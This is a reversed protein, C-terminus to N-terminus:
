NTFLKKRCVERTAKQLSYGRACLKHVFIHCDRCLWCLDNLKENGLNSYRKHHLNLYNTSKCSECKMERKSKNIMRKKTEKWLESDLFDGLSKFGLKNLCRVLINFNFNDLTNNSLITNSCKKKLKYWRKKRNPLRTNNM